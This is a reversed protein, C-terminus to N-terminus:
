SPLISDTDISILIQRNAPLLDSNRSFFTGDSSLYDKKWGVDM